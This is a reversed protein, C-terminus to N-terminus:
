PSNTEFKNRGKLDFRNEVTDYMEYHNLVRRITGNSTLDLTAKIEPYTYNLKKRLVVIGWKTLNDLYYSESTEEEYEEPNEEIEM